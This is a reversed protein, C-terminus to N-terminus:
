AAQLWNKLIQNVAEPQELTSLHGCEQIVELRAKPIAVAM